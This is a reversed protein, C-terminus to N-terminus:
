RERGEVSDSGGGQKDDGGSVHSADNDGTVHSGDNDDSGACGTDGLCDNM